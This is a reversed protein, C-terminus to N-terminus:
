VDSYSLGLTPLDVFVLSNEHPPKAKSVCSDKHVNLRLKPDLIVGLDNFKGIKDFKYSDAFRVSYQIFHTTLFGQRLCFIMLTTITTLLTSDYSYYTTITTLLTSHMDHLMDDYSVPPTYSAWFVHFRPSMVFLGM